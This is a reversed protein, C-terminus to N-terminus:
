WWVIFHHEKTNLKTHKNHWWEMWHTIFAHDLIDNLDVRIFSSTIAATTRDSKTLWLVFLYPHLPHFLTLLGHQVMPTWLGLINIDIRLITWVDSVYGTLLIPLGRWGRFIAEAYTKVREKEGEKWKKIRKRKIERWCLLPLFFELQRCLYTSQTFPISSM